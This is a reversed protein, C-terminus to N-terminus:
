VTIGMKQMLFTANLTSSIGEKLKYDFVLKDNEIEIEFCQNTINEPYKEKLKGLGLDHTAIIGTSQLKLLQEVLAKAGTQQDLSNTGKLIEDLIVFLKRGSNLEDILNKLRKLEAYFFSEHKQLSDKTRMSTYVDIPYFRFSKACVPAGAKALILNLGVTRLYTSKGAMNAGTIIMFQGWGNIKITNNVREEDPILPHGVETAELIFDSTTIEPFIFGPHNFAYNGFSSLADFEEVVAFWEPLKEKVSLKWKELRLLTRLDRMYIANMFVSGLINARNDLDNIINALIKIQEGATKNGSLLKEKNESLLPTKFSESEIAKLLLSYKEMLRFKRSLQEHQRNITKTYFGVIGLQLVAPYFIINYPAMGYLFLIITLLLLAPLIILIAKLFYNKIHKVPEESLKLIENKSEPLEAAMWGTASFNQRWDLKRSLEKVADQRAFIEEPSKVNEKLFAALKIKGPISASRNIYQFVSGEGFIDLDYANAHDFDSFEAGNEFHSYNGQLAETENANITVLYKLKLSQRNLKSHLMILFGLMIICAVFLILLIVGPENYLFYILAIVAIFGALRTHVVLNIKKNLKNLQQQFNERRNNYESIIQEKM